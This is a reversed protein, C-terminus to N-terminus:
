ILLLKRLEMKLVWLFIMNYEQTQQPSLTSFRNSADAAAVKPDRPHVTLGSVILLLDGDIEEQPTITYSPPLQEDRVGFYSYINGTGLDAADASPAVSNVFNESFYPNEGDVKSHRLRSALKRYMMANPDNVIYARYQILQVLRLMDWKYISKSYNPHTRVGTLKRYDDPDSSIPKTFNRNEMFRLLDDPVVTPLSSTSM